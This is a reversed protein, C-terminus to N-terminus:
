QRGGSRYLKKNQKKKKEYYGNIYIAYQILRSVSPRPENENLKTDGTKSPKSNVELLWLRGKTDLGIDIGLEAFHGQIVAELQKTISLAYSKFHHRTIKKALVADALHITEMVKNQTGGQALNSVIHQDNAIRAVMSTIAWEGIRNKQVLIRFDIPRNQYHILQLGQQVLYSRNAIRPHLYKSMKELTQFEKTVSGQPRTFQAQYMDTKKEIRIIGQGLAGNTPKLYIVPYKQLMEKVSLLGKYLVTRPMMKNIPTSNLKQYVEWKNLFHHNFLIFHYHNQLQELTDHLNKELTRSSIRNYIVDPIPFSSKEWKNNKFTWGTVFDNEQNIDQITFLYALVGKTQAIQIVEQAFSTFKGFPLQPQNKQINQILIGLIPGLQLENNNTYKAHIQIGNPLLLKKAIQSPIILLNGKSASAFVMVNVKKHGYTLVFPENIPLNLKQILSPNTYIISARNITQENQITFITM